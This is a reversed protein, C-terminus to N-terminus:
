LAKQKTLNQKSKTKVRSHKPPEYGLGIKGNNNIGYIMSAIKSRDM